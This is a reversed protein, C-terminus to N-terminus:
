GFLFDNAHLSALSINQLTAVVNTGDSLVVDSGSQAIHGNAVAQDFTHDSSGALAVVDGQTGAGHAQFGQIVDHGNVGSTFMFTDNGAGGNLTLGILGGPLASVNIIDDGAGGSIVLNDGAEAHNITVQAPLGSVTFLTGSATVNIHDNGDTGNVTVTDAQGDGVSGGLTAALDVAVQKVGTGALNNVVINDAGGLAEFQIREVSDLDMTINAVDRFFTAHSGNASISVHEGANSGRFDLTDFGSGGDIADSGDGPNWVFLDDGSGGFLQDTGPGGIIVDNGSGGNIVDDGRSGTLTDNGSGGDITLNTVGAPLPSANITDDGAAGKIELNEAGSVDALVNGTDDTLLVDQGNAFVHISDNAHSGKFTFNRM